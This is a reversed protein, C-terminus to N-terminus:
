PLPEAGGPDQAGSGDDSKPSWHFLTKPGAPSHPPYELAKFRNTQFYDVNGAIALANCGNQHMGGVGEKMNPYNSGDNYMRQINSIDTDYPLNPYYPCPEWMIYCLPNWPQNIKCTQYHYESNQGGGPFYCSAGNMVYSSLKQPRAEWFATGVLKSDVPCVFVNPDSVYNWYAGTKINAVRGMLWNKADVSASGTTLNNPFNPNGTGISANGNRLFGYLWGSPCPSGDTGWNPWPMFERNDGAYINLALGFQRLNNLCSIRQARARAAALAPLLLAALIAIIAIVVLLEILTFALRGNIAKACQSRTRWPHIKSYKM